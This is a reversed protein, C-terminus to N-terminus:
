GTLEGFSPSMMRPRPSKTVNSFRFREISLEQLVVGADIVPADMALLAEAIGVTLSYFDWEGGPQSADDRVNEQHM